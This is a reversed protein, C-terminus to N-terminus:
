FPFDIMGRVTYIVGWLQKMKYFNKNPRPDFINPLKNIGIICWKDIDEDKVNWIKFLKVKFQEFCNINKLFSKLYEVKSINSRLLGLDLDVKFDRSKNSESITQLSIYDERITLIYRHLSLDHMPTIPTLYKNNYPSFREMHHRFPSSIMRGCFPIYYYRERKPDNDNVLMKLIGLIVEIPLKLHPILVEVYNELYSIIFGWKGYFNVLDRKRRRNQDRIKQRQQDLIHGKIATNIWNM